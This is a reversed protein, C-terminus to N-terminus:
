SLIFEIGGGSTQRGATVLSRSFLLLSNFHLSPLGSEMMQTLQFKPLPSSIGWTRPLLFGLLVTPAALPCWLSSVSFGYDCLVLWDSWLVVTTDSETFSLWATHPWGLRSPWPPSTQSFTTWQLLSHCVVEANKGQSGWSCYSLCFSLVSFSSGGPRYTGLISSSILPSIVGSLLFPHLWLLFLVWNHIHSTISALDSATFLLIAYSGPINPVHIM